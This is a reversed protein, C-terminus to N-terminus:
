RDQLAFLKTRASDPDDDALDRLIRLLAEDEVIVSLFRIADAKPDETQDIATMLLSRGLTAAPVGSGGALAKLRDLYTRPLRVTFTPDGKNLSM